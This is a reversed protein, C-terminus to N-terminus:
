DPVQWGAITQALTAHDSAQGSTATALNPFAALVDDSKAWVPVDQMKYHFTVQTQRFGNVVTLPTSSDISTVVRHGFCFRPAYRAGTTTVTYRSAHIATEVSVELLQSKVLTNLQKTKAPDSTEYPFRTDVLLCDPHELFYANLTSIFNEPTPKNKSNCAVTPSLIAALLALVVTRFTTTTALANRALSM